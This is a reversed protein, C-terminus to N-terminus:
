LTSIMLSFRAPAYLVIPIRYHNMCSIPGEGEPLGNKRGVVPDRANKGYLRMRM